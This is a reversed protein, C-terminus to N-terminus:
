VASSLWSIYEKSGMCKDPIASRWRKHFWVWQEPYKCIFDELHTHFETLVEATSKTADIEDIKIEYTGDQRKVIFVSVIVSGLRKALDVLSSPTKAPIGFFPVNISDVQTDQDILAAICGNNKLISFIERAGAKDSRWITKVGYSSRLDALVTQMGEDRAERGITAIPIQLSAIYAGLLEWNGLHATLAVIGKKRGFWEEKKPLDPCSIASSNQLLPAFNCSEFFSVALHSYMRRLVKPTDHEPLFRKLQLEAIRRERTPVLAVISGLIRGAVRRAALPLLGIFYILRELLLRKM